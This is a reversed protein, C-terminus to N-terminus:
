FVGTIKTHCMGDGCTGQQCDLTSMCRQGAQQLGRCHGNLCGGSLCQANNNCATNELGACTATPNCAFGSACGGQTGFPLPSCTGAKGQQTCSVCPGTCETSCCLGSTCVNSQCDLPQSCAQAPQQMGTCKGGACKGSICIGDRACSGGEALDCWGDGGCQNPAQCSADHKGKPEAACEGVHGPLNCSYCPGCWGHCCVGDTCAGGECQDGKTCEDGYNRLCVNGLNDDFTHSSNGTEHFVDNGQYQYSTNGLQKSVLPTQNTNTCSRNGDFAIINCSSSTDCTLKVWEGPKLYAHSADFLASHDTNNYACFTIGSSTCNALAVKAAQARTATLSLALLPLTLTLCRSFRLM